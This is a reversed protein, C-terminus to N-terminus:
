AGVATAASPTRNAPCAEARPLFRLLTSTFHMIYHIYVGRRYEEGIDPRESSSRRFSSGDSLLLIFPASWASWVSTTSAALDRILAVKVNFQLKSTAM